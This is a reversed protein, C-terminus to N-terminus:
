SESTRVALLRNTLRIQIVVDNATGRLIVRTMRRRSPDVRSVVFVSRRLGGTVFTRKGLILALASRWSNVRRKWCSIIWKSALV